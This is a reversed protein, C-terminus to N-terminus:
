ASPGCVWAAGGLVWKKFAQRKAGKANAGAQQTKGETPENLRMTPRRMRRPRAVAGQAQADTGVGAAATSTGAGAGAAVAAAAAAAAAAMAGANSPAGGKELHPKGGPGLAQQQQHASGQVAEARGQM